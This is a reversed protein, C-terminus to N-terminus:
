IKGIIKKESDSLNKNSQKNEIYKLQNLLEKEEYNLREHLLKDHPYDKKLRNIENLRENINHIESKNFISSYKEYDKKYYNM